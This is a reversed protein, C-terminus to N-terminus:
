KGRELGSGQDVALVNQAMRAVVIMVIYNIANAANMFQFILAM